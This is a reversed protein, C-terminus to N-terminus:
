TNRRLHLVIQIDEEKEIIKCRSLFCDPKGILAVLIKKLTECRRYLVELDAEKQKAELKYNAKCERLEELERCPCKVTM